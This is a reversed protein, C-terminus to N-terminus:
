KEVKKGFSDCFFQVEIFHNGTPFPIAQDALTKATRLKVQIKNKAQFLQPKIQVADLKGEVQGSVSLGDRFFNKVPCRLFVEGTTENLFELEGNLFAAPVTVPVTGGTEADQANTYNISAPETISTSFGYAVRIASIAVPAIDSLVGEQINRVGVIENESAKVLEAASDATIQKRFYKRDVVFRVRGKRIDTRVEAPLAANNNQALLYRQGPTTLSNSIVQNAKQNAYANVALKQQPNLQLKVMQGLGDLLDSEEKTIDAVMGLGLLANAVEATTEM